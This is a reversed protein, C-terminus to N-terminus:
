LDGKPVAPFFDPEKMRERMKKAMEAQRKKNLRQQYFTVKPEEDKPPTGAGQEKGTKDPKSEDKKDKEKEGDKGKDKEAEKEKKKRQKEDYEKKLRAIEEDEERRKRAAIAEHDIIPTCFKTDKLHMPCVYFWDKNDPTILVSSSPRYCIECAKAATEAVKRHHWVNPFSM